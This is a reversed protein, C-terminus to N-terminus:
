RVEYMGSILDPAGHNERNAGSVERRGPVPHAEGAGHESEAGQDPEPLAPGPDDEGAAELDPLVRPQLDAFITVQDDPAEQGLVHALVVALQLCVSVDRDEDAVAEREGPGRIDAGPGPRSVESDSLDAAFVDTFVQWRFCM